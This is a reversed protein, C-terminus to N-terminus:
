TPTIEVSVPFSLSNSLTSILPTGLMYRARAMLPLRMAALNSSTVIILPISQRRAETFVSAVGVPEQASGLGLATSEATMESLGRALNFSVIAQGAQAPSVVTRLDDRRLDLLVKDTNGNTDHEWSTMLIRPSAAYSRTLLDADLRRTSYDSLAAFMLLRSQQSLRAADQITQQAQRFAPLQDNSQGSNSLTQLQADAQHASTIAHILQQYDAGIASAPVASPAFLTSYSSEANLFTGEAPAPGNVDGGVHRPAYGVTDVITREDTYTHGDPDHVEFDLWEATPIHSAFPFFSRLEDYPTGQIVKGAVVLYPTYTWYHLDVNIVLGPIEVKHVLHQLTVPEGVLEEANFTHEL